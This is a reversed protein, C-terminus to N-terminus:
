VNYISNSYIRAIRNHFKTSQAQAVRANNYTKLRVVNTLHNKFYVSVKGDSHYIYETTAIDILKNNM